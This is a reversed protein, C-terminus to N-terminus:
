NNPYNLLLIEQKLVINIKDILVKYQNYSKQWGFVTGKVRKSSEVVGVFENLSKDNIESEINLFKFIKDFTQNSNLKLDEFRIILLNKDKESKKHLVWSNLEWKYQGIPDYIDLFDEQTLEKRQIINYMNYLSIIADRPDRYVYIFKNNFKHPPTLFFMKLKAVFKSRAHVKFLPIDQNKKIKSYDIDGLSPCYVKTSKETVNRIWHTGTRPFGCMVGMVNFNTKSTLLKLILDKITLRYKVKGLNRGNLKLLLSKIFNKIIM